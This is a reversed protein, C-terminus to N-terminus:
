LSITIAELLFFYDAYARCIEKITGQRNATFLGIELALTDTRAVTTSDSVKDLDSLEKTLPIPNFDPM